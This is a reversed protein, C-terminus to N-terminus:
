INYDTLVLLVIELAMFNLITIKDCIYWVVVYVLWPIWENIIPMINDDRTHLSKFWHIAAEGISKLNKEGVMPLLSLANFLVEKAHPRKARHTTAEGVCLWSVKEGWPCCPLVHWGFHFTVSRSKIRNDCLSRFGFWSIVPFNCM